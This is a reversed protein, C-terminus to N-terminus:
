IQYHSKKKILKDKILQNKDEKIKELLERAPEDSENQPM